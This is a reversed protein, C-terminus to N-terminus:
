DPLRRADTAIEETDNKRYPIRAPCSHAAIGSGANCTRRRRDPNQRPRISPFSAPSPTATSCSARAGKTAPQRALTTSGTRWTPPWVPASPSPGRVQQAHAHGWSLTSSGPCPGNPSEREPPQHGATSEIPDLDGGVSRRVPSMSRRRRSCHWDPQVKVRLPGLTPSPRRARVPDPRSKLIRRPPTRPPAPKPPLRVQQHASPHDAMRVARKLRPATRSRLRTEAARNKSRQGSGGRNQRTRAAAKFPGNGVPNRAHKEVRRSGTRCAAGHACSGQRSRTAM